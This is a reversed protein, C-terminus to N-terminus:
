RHGKHVVDRITASSFGIDSLQRDDMLELRRIVAAKEWRTLLMRLLDPILNRPPDHSMVAEIPKV